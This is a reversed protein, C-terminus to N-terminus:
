KKRALTLGDGVPLMSITVREDALIKANLQRISITDKDQVALDAVKGSWLVNDIAIVGGTRLLALCKEYYNDYNKKDADIFAFDFTNEEGNALLEDLTQLAPALRLDIKSTAHAIEWFQKAMKTSEPHIDCTIVKGNDPLSLAVVLSSYGTFTGIDLTKKANLMTVLLGMFQGQEPSIQMRIPFKKDTQERLQKLLPPERLSNDQLYSYVAPTLAITIDSM